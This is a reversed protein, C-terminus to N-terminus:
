AVLSRFVSVVSQLPNVSKPTTSVPFIVTVAPSVATLERLLHKRKQLSKRANQRQPRKSRSHSRGRSNNRRKNLPKRSKKAKRRPAHKRVSHRKKSHSKSKKHSKRTPPRRRRSSRSKKKKHLPARGRSKKKAPSKSRSRPKSKKKAPSKSRSRGRAKAVKKKAKGRRVAKDQVRLEPSLRAPLTTTTSPSQSPTSKAFMFDTKNNALDMRVAEDDSENLLQRKFVQINGNKNEFDENLESEYQEVENQGLVDPLDTATEDTSESENAGKEDTSNLENTNEENLNQDETELEFVRASIGYVVFCLFLLSIFLRM